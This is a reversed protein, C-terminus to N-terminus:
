VTFNKISAIAAPHKCVIVAIGQLFSQVSNVYGNSTAKLHFDSMNPGKVTEFDSGIYELVKGGNSKNEPLMWITDQPVYESAYAELFDNRHQYGFVKLGRSNDELTNFRRDTERTEVFRSHAEPSMCM